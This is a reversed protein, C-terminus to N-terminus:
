NWPGELRLERQIWCAQGPAAQYKQHYGGRAFSFCGGDVYCRLVLLLTPCVSLSSTLNTTSRAHTLHLYCRQINANWPRQKSPGYAPLSSRNFRRCAVMPAFWPLSLSSHMGRQLIVLVVSASSGSHSSENTELHCNDNCGAGRRSAERSQHISGM